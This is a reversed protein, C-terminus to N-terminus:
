FKLLSKKKAFLTNHFLIPKGLAGRRPEVAPLGAHPNTYAREGRKVAM